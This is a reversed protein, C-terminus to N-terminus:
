PQLTFTGWTYQNDRDGDTVQYQFGISKHFTPLLPAGATASDGTDVAQSLVVTGNSYAQVFVGEIRFYLSMNDIQHVSSATAVKTPTIKVVSLTDGDIDSAGDLLQFVFPTLRPTVLTFATNALVPAHNVINFNAQVEQKYTDGSAWTFLQHYKFTFAGSMSPHITLQINGNVLALQQAGGKMANNQELDILVFGPNSVQMNALTITIPGNVKRSKDIFCNSGVCPSECGNTNIGDYDHYNPECAAVQCVSSSCSESQVFDGLTCVHGCAGCNSFDNTTNTECGNGVIGDCNGFGNACSDVVCFSNACHVGQVNNLSHCNNGVSGCNHVDTTLDVECGNSPVGDVNAWGDACKAIQCIGGSCSTSAVNALASCNNTCSGCMDNNDSVMASTVECGDASLLNCDFFGNSCSLIGCISSSCEATSVESFATCNNSCSGCHYANTANNVECGNDAIGDCDLFGGNCSDLVCTTTTKNCHGTADALNCGNCVDRPNALYAYGANWWGGGTCVGALTITSIRTSGTIGWFTLGNTSFPPYSNAGNITATFTTAIPNGPSGENILGVKVGFATPLLDGSFTFQIGPQSSCSDWSFVPAYDGSFWGNGGYGKFVAAMGDGAVTCSTTHTQPLPCHNMDDYYYGPELANKFTNEDTYTTGPPTAFITTAIACIAFLFLSLKNM